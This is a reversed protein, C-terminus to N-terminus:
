TVGIFLPNAAKKKYLAQMCGVGTCINRVRYYEMDISLDLSLICFKRNAARERPLDTEIQLM